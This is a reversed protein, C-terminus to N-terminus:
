FSMGKVARCLGVLDRDYGGSNSLIEVCRKKYRVLDNGSMGAVKQDSVNQVLGGKSAGPVKGGAKPGTPGIM